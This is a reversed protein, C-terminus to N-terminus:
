VWDRCLEPRHPVLPPPWPWEGPARPYRTEATCLACTGGLFLALFLLERCIGTGNRAPFCLLLAPPANGPVCGQGDLPVEAGAPHQERFGLRGAASVASCEGAKVGRTDRRPNAVLKISHVSSFTGGGRGEHM